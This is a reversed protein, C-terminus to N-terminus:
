IFPMSTLVATGHTSAIISHKGVYHFFDEFFFFFAIPRLSQVSGLTTCSGKKGSGCGSTYPIVGIPCYGPCGSGKAGLCGIGYGGGGFGSAYPMGGVVWYGSRASGKAWMRGAGYEGGGGIVGGGIGIGSTWTM